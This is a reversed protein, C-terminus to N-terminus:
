EWPLRWIPIEKRKRKNLKYKIWVVLIPIIIISFVMLWLYNKNFGYKIQLIYVILLNLILFQLISWFLYAYNGSIPGGYKIWARKFYLDSSFSYITYFILAYLFIIPSKFWKLTLGLIILLMFFVSTVWNNIKYYREKQIM